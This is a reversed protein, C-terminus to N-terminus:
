LLHEFNDLILLISRDRLAEELARDLQRTAADDIGLSRAIEAGVLAPEQIASLDVFCCGDPYRGGARRAVELALRTKGTGGPGTLTLLRTRELLEEIQELEDRRGILETPPTP